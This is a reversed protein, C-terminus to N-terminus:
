NDKINLLMNIYSGNYNRDLDTKGTDTRRTKSVGDPKIGLLLGIASTQNRKNNM